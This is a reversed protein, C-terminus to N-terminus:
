MPFYQSFFMHSKQFIGRLFESFRNQVAIYAYINGFKDELICRETNFCYTKELLIDETLKLDANNRSVSEKRLEEKQVEGNDVNVTYKYPTLFPLATAGSVYKGDTFEPLFSDYVKVEKLLTHEKDYLSITMAYDEEVYRMYIDYKCYVLQGLNDVGIIENVEKPGVLEIENEQFYYTYVQNPSSLLVQDQSIWIVQTPSSIDQVFNIYYNNNFLIEKLNILLVFITISIMSIVTIKFLKRM